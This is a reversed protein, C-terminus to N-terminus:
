GAFSVIRRHSLDDSQPSRAAVFGASTRHTVNYGPDYFVTGTNLPTWMGGPKRAISVGAFKYAYSNCLAGGGWSEATAVPRWRQHSGPLLIPKTIPNGDVWVRWSNPRKAMELVAVRRTEGATVDMDIEHYTPDGGPRAIEYYLSHVSRGPFAALGVQIWETSGHPGQGVGGVGVYSAVHGGRVDFSTLPTIRAAVGAVRGSGSVGAYTYGTAVCAGQALPASALMYLTLLALAGPAKAKWWRPM